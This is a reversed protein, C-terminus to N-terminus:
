FRNFGDSCYQMIVVDLALCGIQISLILLMTIVAKAM